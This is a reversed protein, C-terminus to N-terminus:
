GKVLEMIKTRVGASLQPWATVLKQLSDTLLAGSEAGSTECDESKGPFAAAQELGERGL